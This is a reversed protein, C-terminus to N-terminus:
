MDLAEPNLEIIANLKPGNKDIDNIRTLYLQTIGHSTYEKSQMKQQLMDITVENLEFDDSKKEAPPQKHDSGPTCATISLATLTIGAVSGTKIFNRRHM